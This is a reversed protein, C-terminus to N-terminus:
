AAPAARCSLTHRVALAFAAPVFFLGGEWTLLVLGAVLAFALLVRVTPPLRDRLAVDIGAIVAIVPLWLAAVLPAGAVTLLVVAALALGIAVGDAFLAAQPDRRM